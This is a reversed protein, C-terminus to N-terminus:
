RRGRSIEPQTNIQSPPPECLVAAREKRLEAGNPPLNVRNEQGFLKTVYANGEGRPSFVMGGFATPNPAAGAKSIPGRGVFGWSRRPGEDTLKASVKERSPLLSGQHAYLPAKGRGAM